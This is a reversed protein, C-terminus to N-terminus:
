KSAGALADRVKDVMAAFPGMVAAATTTRASPHPHTPASREAKELAEGMQALADTDEHERVLPFEYSEENQAHELVDKSFATYATLFEPTTVDLKELDALVQKAQNEEAMRADAIVDGGPVDSRTVPRLIFEEATEHVALLERLEDFTAQRSEAPANAVADLLQQIRQHQGLLFDIGNEAM